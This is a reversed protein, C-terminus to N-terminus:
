RSSTILPLNTAPIPAIANASAATIATTTDYPISRRPTPGVMLSTTRIIAKKTAIVTGVTAGIGAHVDPMAAVHNHIIPLQSLNILQQLAEPEIDETWIKVPVHGKDVTIRITM